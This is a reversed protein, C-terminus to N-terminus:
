EDNMRKSQENRQAERALVISAVGDAPIEYRIAEYAM